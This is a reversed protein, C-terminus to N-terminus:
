IQNTIYNSRSGESPMEQQNMAEGLTDPINLNEFDTLSLNQHDKVKEGSTSYRFNVDTDSFMREHYKKSNLPSIPPNVRKAETSGYEGFPVAKHLVAETLSTSM